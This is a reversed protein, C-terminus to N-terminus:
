RTLVQNKASFLTYKIINTVLSGILPERKKHKLVTESQKEGVEQIITKGSSQPFMM